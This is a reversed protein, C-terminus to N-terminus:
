CARWLATPSAHRGAHPVYGVRLIQKRKAAGMFVGGWARTDPPEVNGAFNYAAIVDYATFDGHTAAYQLLFALAGVRWEPEVRDAHELAQAIGADREARATTLSM